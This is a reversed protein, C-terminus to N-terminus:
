ESAVNLMFNIHAQTHIHLNEAMIFETVVLLSCCTRVTVITSIKVPRPPPSEAVPERAPVWESAVSVDSPPEEPRVPDNGPQGPSARVEPRSGGVAAGARDDMLAGLGIDEEV